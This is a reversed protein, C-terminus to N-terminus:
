EKKKRKTAVPKDAAPEPSAADPQAAPEAPQTAAPAQGKALEAVISAKVQAWREAQVAAEAAQAEAVRLQEALPIQPAATAAPAATAVAVAPPPMPKTGETGGQLQEMTHIQAEWWEMFGARESDSLRALVEMLRGEDRALSQFVTLLQQSGPSVADRVDLGGWKRAVALGVTKVTSVLERKAEHDAKASDRAAARDLEALKAKRVEEEGERRERRDALAQDHLDRIQERMVQMMTVSGTMLDCFNDEFRDLKGMMLQLVGTENAPLSDIGREAGPVAVKIWFFCSTESEAPDTEFYAQVVFQQAAGGLGAAYNEAKSWVSHAMEAVAEGDRQEPALLKLQLTGLKDGLRRNPTVHKLYIVVARDDTHLACAERLWEVLREGDRGMLAPLGGRAKGIDTIAAVPALAKTTM